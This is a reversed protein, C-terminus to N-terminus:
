EDLLAAKTQSGVIADQKLKKAKQFGIVAKDTKDGWIGDVALDYGYRNLMMQVWKVDDKPSGKKVNKDPVTYTNEDWEYLKYKEIVSILTQTYTPSTAYGDDKVYKCALRYDKCGRLNKYRDARNFLASHDAISEKWSPYKRFEAPITVYQNNIFEKTNMVVYAGNYKGKMGFLNNANVTLGSNGKNSEIFAQAATLSALIGSNQCDKIVLPKIRALFAKDTYGM